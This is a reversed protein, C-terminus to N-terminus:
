PAGHRRRGVIPSVVFIGLLVLLSLASAGAGLKEWHPDYYVVLTHEGGPLYLGRLTYNTRLLPVERGDLRARWYPYWNESIVLFGPGQTKVRLELRNPSESLLRVDWSGPSLGQRAQGMVVAVRGLDSAKTLRLAQAEDGAAVM